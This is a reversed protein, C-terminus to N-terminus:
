DVNGRRGQQRNALTFQHLNLRFEGCGGGPNRGAARGEVYPAVHEVIMGPAALNDRRRLLGDILKEGENAVATEDIKWCGLPDDDGRGGRVIEAERRHM